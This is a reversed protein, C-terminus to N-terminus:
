NGLWADESDLGATDRAHPRDEGGEHGDDHDRVVGGLGRGRAVAGSGAFGFVYGCYPSRSPQKRGAVQWEFFGDRPRHAAGIAAERGVEGGRGRRANIMKTGIAPEQGPRSCMASRLGALATREDRPRHASGTLRSTPGQLREDVTAAHRYKRAAADCFLVTLM